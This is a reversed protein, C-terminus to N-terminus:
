RRGAMMPPYQPLQGMGRGRDEVSEEDSGEEAAARRGEESAEREGMGDNMAKEKALLEKTRAKPRLDFFFTLVYLTFIFAIIWELVAGTRSKSTGLCVAFGISLGGEVVLLM